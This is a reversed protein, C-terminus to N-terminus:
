GYRLEDGYYYFPGKMSLLFHLYKSSLARFEPSDNGWRSTMRPQDHNGLYITGWGKMMFLMGILINKKLDTLKYPGMKKFERSCLWYKTGEFHYGMNLEHRDPDVFNLATSKLMGAGEALSM